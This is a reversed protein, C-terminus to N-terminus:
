SARSQPPVRSYRKKPKSVLRPKSDETEGAEDMPETPEADVAASPIEREPPAASTGGEAPTAEATPKTVKRAKAARPLVIQGLEASLAEDNEAYIRAYALAQQALTALADHKQTMAQRLEALKAEQAEIEATATEVEAALSSLGNADIDAFRVGALPGRFLAVVAQLPPSLSTMPERIMHETSGYIWWLDGFFERRDRNRNASGRRFRLYAGFRRDLNECSSSLDLPGRPSFKRNASGGALLQLNSRARTRPRPSCVFV